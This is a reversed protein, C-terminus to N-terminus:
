QLVETATLFTDEKVCDALTDAAKSIDSLLHAVHLEDANEISEQFLVWMEPVVTDKLKVTLINEDKEHLGQFVALVIQNLQLMQLLDKTPVATQESFNLLAM